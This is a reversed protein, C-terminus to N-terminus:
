DGEGNAEPGPEGDAEAQPEIDAWLDAVTGQFGPLRESVIVDDGTFVRESWTPGGPGERRIRVTVKKERLDGIWYEGIRLALYEESKQEYDRRRAEARPSVVECVWEPIQRGRPSLPAGRFIVALDPHRDSVLEPIILRVDSGHAIRRIRGPHGRRYLSVAEHLNDVIQGHADSPVESVELVGRALEYLYGPQEEAERFEELTMARGHDAPGIRLKVVSM